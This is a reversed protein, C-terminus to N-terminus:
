PVLFASSNLWNSHDLPTPSIEIFCAFFNVTKEIMTKNESIDDSTKGMLTNASSVVGGGVSRGSTDCGVSAGTAVSAGAPMSAVSIAGETVSIGTVSSGDSVAGAAISAGTVSGDVELSSVLSIL